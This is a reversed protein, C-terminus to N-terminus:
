VGPSMIVLLWSLQEDRGMLGKIVVLVRGCDVGDSGGCVVVVVSTVSITVLVIIVVSILCIEVLELFITIIGELECIDVTCKVDAITAVVVSITVLVIIIVSKLCLEVLELFITIIGELECIDVTCKVDAITAVLVTYTCDVGKGLTVEVGSAIIPGDDLTPTCDVRTAISVLRSPTIGVPSGSMLTLM